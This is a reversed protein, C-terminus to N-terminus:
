RPAIGSVLEMLWSRMRQLAAKARQWASLARVFAYLRDRWAFLWTESALFWPMTVLTPRLVQYLRALLATALVKGIAISAAALGFRGQLAFFVAALKVPLVLTSPAVFALLAAWPPLGALWRELRAVPPWRGFAAMAVGLYHLLVEEFFVIAAALPIFALELARKLHNKM